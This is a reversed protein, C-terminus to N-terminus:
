MNTCEKLLVNVSIGMENKELYIFPRSDAKSISAVPQSIVVFPFAIFALSFKM